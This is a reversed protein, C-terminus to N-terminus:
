PLTPVLNRKQDANDTTQFAVKVKLDFEAAAGEGRKIIKDVLLKAYQGDATKIVYVHGETVEISNGTKIYGAEPAWDVEDWDKCYGKDQIVAGNIGNLGARRGGGVDYSDCMIDGVKGETEWTDTNLGRVEVVKMTDLEIASMKQTQTYDKMELFTASEKRPTEVIQESAQSKKDGSVAVMRFYYTKGNELGTITVSKRKGEEVPATEKLPKLSTDKIAGNEDVEIAKESQYVEYKVDDQKYYPCYYSIRVAKDLNTGKLGAPPALEEPAVPPPKDDPCGVLLILGLCILGLYRM